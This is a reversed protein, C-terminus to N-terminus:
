RLARVRPFLVNNEEHIHQQLDLELRHLAELLRRHTGCVAVTTDYDHAPERLATLAGGTETHDQEHAALV